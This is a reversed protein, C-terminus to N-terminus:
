INIKNSTNMIGWEHVDMQKTFSRHLKVNIEYIKEYTDM